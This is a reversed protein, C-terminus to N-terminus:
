RWFLPNRSPFGIAYSSTSAESYPEADPQQESDLHFRGLAHGLRKTQEALYDASELVEGIDELNARASQGAEHLLASIHDIGGSQERSAERIRALLQETEEINSQMHALMANIRGAVAAALEVQAVTEQMLASTEQAAQSSRDALNRVEQAVITFGKGHRGARAAEVSANLALLNTQFSIDSISKAIRVIKDGCVQMNLMVMGMEGIDEYGREILHRGSDTMKDAQETMSSNDGARERIRDIGSTVEEVTVNIGSCNNSVKRGATAITKCSTLVQGTHTNVRVLAETALDALNRMALALTDTSNRVMTRGTFNGAQMDNVINAVGRHSAIAEDVARTLEGIEDNRLLLSEPVNEENSKVAFRSLLFANRRLAWVISKLIYLYVGVLLVIGVIGGIVLILGWSLLENTPLATQTMRLGVAGMFFFVIAAPTLMLLLKTALGLGQREPQQTTDHVQVM